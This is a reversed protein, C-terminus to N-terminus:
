ENLMSWRLASLQWRMQEAARIEPLYPREGKIAHYHFFALRTALVNFQRRRKWGLRGGVKRAESLAMKRCAPDAISNWEEWTITGLQVEMPLFNRIVRDEQEKGLLILILAILLPPISFPLGGIVGALILAKWDALLYFRELGISLFGIVISAGLNWIAHGLVAATWGLIPVIARLIGRGHRDRAWGIGAGTFSTWVAHGLGNILSRVVFLAGFTAAGNESYTRGFYTINETMAFGLGVLAGLVIGDLMGDIHKRAATLVVLVLLGKASEEVLPAAIVATLIAGTDPDSLLAFVSYAATNVFLAFFVAIVAGWFFALARIEWTEPENRDLWLIFTVYAITPLVAAGVVLVLPVLDFGTSGFIFLLVTAFMGFGILTLVSYLGSRLLARRQRPIFGVPVPEPDATGCQRCFNAPPQVAGCHDCLRISAAVSNPM